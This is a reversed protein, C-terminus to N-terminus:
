KYYARGSIRVDVYSTPTKSQSDLNAKVALFTGAAERADTNFDFKVFYPLGALYVDLEQSQPPLTLKQVTLHKAALQAVVTNIYQVNTGALVTKGLTPPLGSQDVVTTLKSRVNPLLSQSDMIVRGNQDLVVTKNGSQLLMAPQAEELTVVPQQSVIPLSLSVDSVEPFKQLFAKQFNSTSITLKTSSLISQKLIAQAGAQYVQKSRLPPVASADLPTIVIQPTNSLGLCYLVSIFVAMLALLAPMNRAWRRHDVNKRIKKPLTRTGDKTTSKPARSAHNNYYSFVGGRSDNAPAVTPRRGTPTAKKPAGRKFM